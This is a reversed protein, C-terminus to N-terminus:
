KRVEEWNLTVFPNKGSGMRKISVQGIKELFRLARWKQDRSLGFRRLNCTTFPVPNNHNPHTFWLEHLALVAALVTWHARHEVMADLLTLPLVCKQYRPRNGYRRVKTLKSKGDGNSRALYEEPLRFNAPDFPDISTNSM